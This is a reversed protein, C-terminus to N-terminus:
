WIHISHDNRITATTQTTANRGRYLCELWPHTNIRDFHLRISTAGPLTVTETRNAGNAYPHPSALPYVVEAGHAGAVFGIVLLWGALLTKM